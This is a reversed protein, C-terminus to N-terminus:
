KWHFIFFIPSKNSIVVHIQLFSGILLCFNIFLHLICNVMCVRNSQDLINTRRMVPQVHKNEGTCQNVM